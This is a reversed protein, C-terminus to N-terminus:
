KIILYHIEPNSVSIKSVSLECQYNSKRKGSQHIRNILDNYYCSLTYFIVLREIFLCM